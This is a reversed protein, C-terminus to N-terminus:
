FFMTLNKALLVSQDLVIKRRAIRRDGDERRLLDDRKDKEPFGELPGFQLSFAMLEDDTLRLAQAM